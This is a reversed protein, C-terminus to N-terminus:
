GEAPLETIKEVVGDMAHGVVSDEIKVRIKDMEADVLSKPTVSLVAQFLWKKLFSVPRGESHVYLAYGATFGNTIALALFPRQSVADALRDVWSGTAM